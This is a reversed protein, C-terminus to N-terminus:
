SAAKELADMEVQRQLYEFLARAGDITNTLAVIRNPERGVKLAGTEPEYVPTGSDYGMISFGNDFKIVCRIIRSNSEVGEVFPNDYTVSKIGYLHRTEPNSVTDVLIKFAPNM